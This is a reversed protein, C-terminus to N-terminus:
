SLHPLPMTRRRRKASEAVEDLSDLWVTVELGQLEGKLTLYKQAKEAQQRLPEVQLELESIKDGIRLLNDQTNALRRRRDGRKQPPIQSIGPLERLSRAATQRNRPLFRM